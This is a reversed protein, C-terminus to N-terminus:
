NLEVIHIFTSPSATTITQRQTSHDRECHFDQSRHTTLNLNEVGTACVRVVCVAKIAELTSTTKLLGHIRCVNEESITGCM